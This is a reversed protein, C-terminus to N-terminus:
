CAIASIIAIAVEKSSDKVEKSAPKGFNISRPQIGIVTIECKLSEAFYDTLIKIPIKHTSFSVGSGIESGKLLLVTGPKEGIEATDVLILHTPKFDRIEGTINEPATSGFFVRLRASRPGHVTSRPSKIKKDVLEAVLVGAVDDGRLESGIGLIAVRKAGKLRSTLEKKLNEM